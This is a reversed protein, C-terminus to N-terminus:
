AAASPPSLGTATTRLSGTITLISTSKNINVLTPRAARSLTGFGSWTQPTSGNILLTTTGGTFATAISINGQAALTGTTLTGSTLTLNGPM